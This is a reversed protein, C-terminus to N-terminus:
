ILALDYLKGSLVVYRPWGKLTVGEFASWQCKTKLRVQSVTQIKNLDVLVIDETKSLNFIKKANTSTLSIINELSLKNEHYANLLLALTTEIGPM